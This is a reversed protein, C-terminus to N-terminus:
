NFLRKKSYITTAILGIMGSALLVIYLTINDGTKPSKSNTITFKTTAEGDAVRVSITHEKASLKKGFDANFTIITSGEKSTYNSPDVLEGDIFVKGSTIFEDYDINVRFELKSNNSINVTQNAGDIFKYSKNAFIINTTVDYKGYRYNKYSKPDHEIAKANKNTASIEKLAGTNTPVVFAEDAEFELKLVSNKEDGLVIKGDVINYYIVKENLVTKSDNFVPDLVYKVLFEADSLETSLYDIKYSLNKSFDLTITKSGHDVTEGNYEANLIEDKVFKNDIEIKIVKKGALVTEDKEILEDITTIDFGDFQDGHDYKIKPYGSKFYDVVKEGYMVKLVSLVSNYASTTLKNDEGIYIENTEKGVTVDYALKGVVGTQSGYSKKKVLKEINGFVDPELYFDKEDFLPYKKTIDIKVSYYGNDKDEKQEFGDKALTLNQLKEPFLAYNNFVEGNKYGHLSGITDLLFYATILQEDVLYDYSLINNELKYSFSSGTDKLTVLLINEDEDSVYADAAYGLTSYNKIIKSDNFAESIEKLTIEKASVNSIFIISLMLVFVMTLIIRIKKM